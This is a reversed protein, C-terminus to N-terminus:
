IQRKGIIKAKQLQEPTITEIYDMPNENKCNNIMIKSIIDLLEKDFGIKNLENLYKYFTRIEIGSIKKDLIYILIMMCYCYLDSNEDAIIHGEANPNKSIKYKKCDNVLSFQTLYRSLFPANTGIKCSDLDIVKIEKSYNDILFNDAHVDNIYIDKLDTTTRIYHLKQLIQGVQKLYYLKEKHDIDPNNLLQSLNTGNIKTLTFGKITGGTSCLYDPIVFSDPLYTKNADLMKLTYLKNDITKSNNLIKLIKNEKYYLEYLGGESNMINNSINLQQLKKLNKQSLYITQM